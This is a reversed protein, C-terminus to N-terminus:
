EEAPANADIVRASITGGYGLVRAVIERISREAASMQETVETRGEPTRILEDNWARRDPNDEKIKFLARLLEEPTQANMPPAGESPPLFQNLLNFLFLILPDNPTGDSPVLSLDFHM